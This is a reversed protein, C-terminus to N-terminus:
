SPLPFEVVRGTDLGFAWVDIPPPELGILSLGTCIQSRHDNGHNLAQAFRIAMSADRGWGDDVDRVNADPRPGEGLLGSWTDGNSEIVARLDEMSMRDEDILRGPDNTFHSLYYSDGGVMHRMTTLISGYTGPVEAELQQPTLALCTDILRVTAWVHHAFAADLLSEAMACVTGDRVVSGLLRSIEPAGM